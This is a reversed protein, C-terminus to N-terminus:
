AASHARSAAERWGAAKVAALWALCVLASVTVKLIRRNM